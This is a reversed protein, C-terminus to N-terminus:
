VVRRLLTELWALARGDEVMAPTVRLVRWGMILATNLKELDRSYGAGTVHRGGTFTGGDVELAVRASPWAYDFRWRRPPAFVHEVVPLPLDTAQLQAALSVRTM